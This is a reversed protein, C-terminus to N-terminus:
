TIVKFLTFAGKFEEFQEQPLEFLDFNEYFPENFTCELLSYNFNMM